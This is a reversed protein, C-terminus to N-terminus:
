STPARPRHLSYCYLSFKINTDPILIRINLTKRIIVVGIFVIPAIAIFNSIFQILLFGNKSHNHNVPVNGSHSKYPHSHIITIGDVIHNHPFFTFSAFYGCFIILLFYGPLKNYIQKLFDLKM